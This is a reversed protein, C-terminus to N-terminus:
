VFALIMLAIERESMESDSMYHRAWFCASQFLMDDDPEFGVEDLRRLIEHGKDLVQLNGHMLGKEIMRDVGRSVYIQCVKSETLDWEELIAEVM